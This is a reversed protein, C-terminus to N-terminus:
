DVKIYYMGLYRILIYEYFIFLLPLRYLIIVIEIRKERAQSSSYIHM